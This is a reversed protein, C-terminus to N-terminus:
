PVEGGDIRDPDPDSDPDPEPEPEPEALTAVHRFFRAFARAAAAEQETRRQGHSGAALHDLVGTLYAAGGALRRNTDTGGSRELHGILWSLVLDEVMGADLRGLTETV